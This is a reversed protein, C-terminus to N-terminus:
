LGIPWKIPEKPNDRFAIKHYVTDEPHVKVQRYMKEM